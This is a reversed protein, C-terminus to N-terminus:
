RFFPVPAARVVPRRRVKELWCLLLPTRVEIGELLTGAEPAGTIQVRVLDLTLTAMTCAAHLTIQPVAAAAIAPAACDTMGEIQLCRHQLQWEVHAELLM